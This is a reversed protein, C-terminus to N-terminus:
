EDDSIEFSNQTMRSRNQQRTRSRATSTTSSTVQIPRSLSRQRVSGNQFHSLKDKEIRVFNEDFALSEEIEESTDEDSSLEMTHLTRDYNITEDSTVHEDGEVFEAFRTPQSLNLVLKWQEKCKPSKVYERLEKLAKDTEVRGQEEFEEKSLLKRKPPFRKRWMRLVWNSIGSPFYYLVMSVIIIGITAERLESSFYIALLGLLQLGWKILDQSRINKPPGKYYCIAFSICSTALVYAAIYKQQNILISQVNEFLIQAFYATLTWGGALVGYMM